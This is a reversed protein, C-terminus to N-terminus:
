MCFNLEYKVYVFNTEMIFVPSYREQLYDASIKSLCMFCMFCVCVCM